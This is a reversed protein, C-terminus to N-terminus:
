RYIVQYTYITTSQGNKDTETSEIVNGYTDYVYAYNTTNENSGVTPNYYSYLVTSLNGKEDYSYTYKSSDSTSTLKQGEANYTYETTSVTKGDYTYVVKILNGNADYTYTTIWPALDTYKCETKKLLNGNDDYEYAYKSVGNKSEEEMYGYNGDYTYTQNQWFDTTSITKCSLVRAKEDYTYESTETNGNKLAVIRKVLNEDLDYHYTIVRGDSDKDEKKVLVFSFHAFLNEEEASRDEIAYLVSYADQYKGEAIYAQATEMVTPISCEPISTTAITDAPDVNSCGAVTFILILILAFITLQSYLKM